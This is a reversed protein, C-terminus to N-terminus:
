SINNARGISVYNDLIAKLDTGEEGEWNRIGEVMFSIRGNELKTENYRDRYFEGLFTKRDRLIGRCESLTCSPFNVNWIQAYDLPKEMLEIMIEELYRDTVEHVPSADESFAIVHKKQFAAEFAAGVTASYQLDTALNYGYNIGSFVFEASGPIINLLGIRVCDAPTGTSAFARVGPVPYDVEWAEISNHFSAAHSKGSRESDPAVIWVEGLKSAARALREMGDTFIGDDNTLMIKSM